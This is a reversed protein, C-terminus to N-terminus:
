DMPYPPPKGEMAGRLWPHELAQAATPRQMPDWTLLYNIFHTFDDDFANLRHRLTTKKPYLLTIQGRGVGPEEEDSLREFLTFDSTFYKPVDRGLQLMREPVPGLIGVARALLTQVSDSHLLVQGTYVEALVCGLSWIDIKQDYPMGLIVEPARYARSQIYSTLHDTIYCSSGFDITEPRLTASPPPPRVRDTM